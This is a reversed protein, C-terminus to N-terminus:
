NAIQLRAHPPGKGFGTQLRLADRSSSLHGYVRYFYSEGVFAFGHGRGDEAHPYHHSWIGLTEGGRSTRNVGPNLTQLISFDLSTLRGNGYGFDKNVM